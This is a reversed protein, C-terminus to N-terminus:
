PQILKNKVISVYTIKDIVYRIFSKFNVSTSVPSYLIDRKWNGGNVITLWLEDNVCKDFKNKEM